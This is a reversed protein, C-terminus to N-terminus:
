RLIHPGLDALDRSGTLAMTVVLEDRMLTLLRDVGRTGEAAVAYVWPRGVLCARAGLALARAVDQGSRVGGDMLVETRGGVADVVAPLARITSPASDLQRGGHNSVIVADAGCDVARAADDPELIGKVVLPGTWRERVWLLDDWTVSPDFQTAIWRQFDTPLRADPVAAELNGFRLPRGRRGVDVAWRLHAALDASRRWRGWPGLTADIGNRVDRLRRGVVALDVTLVLVPCRAAQARELLAAAYGRDRMIYLQFWPPPAAQAVEELSCISLTSEVFPVGQHAAATAAQVEARRAMMGAFGVPALILPQALPQGLVTTATTPGAVDRLVRQRFEIADLDRRNARVTAESNAGGDVYDFLQRPLIRRARRRYDDSGAAVLNLSREPRPM